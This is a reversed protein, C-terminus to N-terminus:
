TSHYPKNQVAFMRWNCLTSPTTCASQLPQTSLHSLRWNMASCASCCCCTAPRLLCVWAMSLAVQYYATWYRPSPIVVATDTTAGFVTHSCDLRHSQTRIRDAPRISNGSKSLSSMGSGFKYIRPNWATHVKKWGRVQKQGNM